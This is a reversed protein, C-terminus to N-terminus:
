RYDGIEVYYWAGDREAFFWLMNGSRRPNLEGASCCGYHPISDYGLPIAQGDYAAGIKGDKRFFYFPKGRLLQFGFSEQYGYRQNLSVGDLIVQGSPPQFYEAVSAPHNDLAELV